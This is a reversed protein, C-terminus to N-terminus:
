HVSQEILEQPMDTPTTPIMQRPTATTMPHFLLTIHDMAAKITKKMM